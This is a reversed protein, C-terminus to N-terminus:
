EGLQGVKQRSMQGHIRLILDNTKKMLQGHYRTVSLALNKILFKAPQIQALHALILALVLSKAM